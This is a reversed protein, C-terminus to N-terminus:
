SPLPPSVLSSAFPVVIQPQLIGLGISLLASPSPLTCKIPLTFASLGVLNDNLFLLITINQLVEEMNKNLNVVTIIELM